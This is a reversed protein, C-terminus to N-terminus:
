RVWQTYGGLNPGVTYCNPWIKLKTKKRRSFEKEKCGLHQTPLGPQEPSTMVIITKDSVGAAKAGLHRLRPLLRRRGPPQKVLGVMQSLLQRAMLSAEFGLHLDKLRLGGLHHLRLLGQDLCVLLAAPQGIVLVGLQLRGKGLRGVQLLQELLAVAGNILLPATRQEFCM